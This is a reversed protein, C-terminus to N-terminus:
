YVLERLDGTIEFTKSLVKRGMLEQSMEDPQSEGEYVTFLGPELICRGDNDILAMDRPKFEFKVTKKEGPLLNIRKVGRLEYKPVKVSSETDKLYLQVVEDSKVHGVNKVDVYIDIADDVSIKESSLWLNDYEFEAFSLGFGFPYLPEKEMYRYTRGSMNYDEFPPIDDLSKVFTVPLRGAPSYDGFIIDAVATGGEEGPYWAEIIAPINEKAWNITLPSGNLLVLVIPKGTDKLEKLLDKQVGPLDLNLRDGDADSGEVHGEEGELKPSIGMCAIVVDSKVAAEIADKFGEKSSGTLECGKAYLVEASVKNKIGDLMTVYKSPTGNYNGLLVDLSDANPGIVAIKKLNKQLPLLNNENKLLVISELAAKLTMKRHEDSDNVSYPINAYLVMEPPDFMGLRFRAEFLKTVAKDITEESVLGEKVATLLSEYTNGCNLECGNNVAMTASEAANKTVKHHMHFDDIAGCDSVVYGDFGWEKRLIDILLTKSGCCPEDNTRNYAGMISAAHGEKVCKKFAPLYTERLDKNNVVANFQHRLKEPGSHVAYHKPTAVLKLYREDNGQLGKVFAVGLEGTLFPDEGYTEQGRGWRPDRFINVNPSWFTLGKYIGRDNNRVFEHHKARAEDSIIEAIQYILDPNFTAGLGIAQPFVSAIGARAVGHLCENWWNYEPIGLRPIAPSEHLMQSIKESLTMRSVLDKVREEIPLNSNKYPYVESM